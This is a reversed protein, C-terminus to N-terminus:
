DNLAAMVSEEFENATQAGAGGDYASNKMYVATINNVPDVWFHTGYAGSWGWAGVPLKHAYTPRTVVRVGLGWRHDCNMFAEPVYPTQMDKVAQESLIRNGNDAMGLHLLMEAFKSYDEGTTALGAGAVWANAPCGAFVTGNKMRTMDISKDDKDRGHMTVMRDYQADTPEFTTDTLGLPKIIHEMVYPGFSEGTVVEIIRAAVDFAASPSYSQRTYPQFALPQKAYYDATARPSGCTLKQVALLTDCGIGSTHTLLHYVLLPVRAVGDQVINNKGDKVELHAVSMRAFQPLYDAVPAQLDILGKDVCQMVAVATFPKTMSAARYIRDEPLAPGNVGDTGFLKKYVRKGDQNVIIEAHGLRGDALRAETNKTIIEDLKTVNITRM